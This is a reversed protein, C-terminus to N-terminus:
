RVEADVFLPHGWYAVREEHWADDGVRTAFSGPASCSNTGVLPCSLEIRSVSAEPDDARRYSVHGSSGNTGLGDQLWCRVVEGPEIRAPPEVVWTGATATLELREYAHTGAANDLTLYCSHDPLGAATIPATIADIPHCGGDGVAWM